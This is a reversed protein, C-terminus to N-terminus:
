QCTFSVNKGTFCSEDVNLANFTDSLVPMGDFLGISTDDINDINVSDRMSPLELIFLIAVHPPTLRRLLRAPALGLANEGFSESRLIIVLTNNRLVNEALFELPNITAAIPGDATLLEYLSGDYVLRQTHVVDWFHDVDLPHGGLDWEVRENGAPGTVRVDSIKSKFAIDGFFDQRLMGPGLALSTLSDALEGRRFDHLEFADSMSQGAELEEGVTVTVTVRTAHKYVHKDTIVLTHNADTYIDEVVEGTVRVLPVGSMMSAVAEIHSLGTGGVIADMAANLLDLYAQSSDMQLGLVYGLHYWPLQKDIDSRFLWILIEQDTVEGDTFIPRKPILENDFPNERFVLANRDAILQFDTNKHLVLSPSELRNSILWCDSISEDIEYVFDDSTLPVDFYYEPSGNFPPLDADDFRWLAALNDNTASELLRVAVWDETHFAPITYRSVIAEAEKLNRHSQQANEAAAQIRDMLWQRGDYTEYWLSGLLSLIKSPNDLDNTPYKYM